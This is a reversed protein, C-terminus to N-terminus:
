QANTGTLRRVVYDCDEVVAVFKGNVTVVVCRAGYAFHKLDVATPERVTTVEHPNVFVRQGDPGHLPLLDITSGSLFLLGLLGLLAGLRRM